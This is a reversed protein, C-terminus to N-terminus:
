DIDLLVDKPIIIQGLRWNIFRYRYFIAKVPEKFNPIKNSVVFRNLNTYYLSIKNNQDYEQKIITQDFQIKNSSIKGNFFLAKVGGPTLTSDVISDTLTSIIPSFLIMSLESFPTASSEIKIKYRIINNLETKLNERVLPLDIHKMSKDYDRREIASKLSLVSLYPSLYTYFLTISFLLKVYVIRKLTHGRLFSFFNM